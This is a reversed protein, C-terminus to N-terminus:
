SPPAATTRIGYAPLKKRASFIPFNKFRVQYILGLIDAIERLDDMTAQSKRMLIFGNETGKSCPFSLM